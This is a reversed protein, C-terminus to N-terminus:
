HVDPEEDGIVAKGVPKVSETVASPLPLHNLAMGDLREILEGFRHPVDAKRLVAVDGHLLDLTPARFGRSDFLVEGRVIGMLLYTDIAVSECREHDYYAEDLM